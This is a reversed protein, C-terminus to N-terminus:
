LRVTTIPTTGDRSSFEEHGIGAYSVEQDTDRPNSVTECQQGDLSACTTETNLPHRRHVPRAFDIFGDKITDLHGVGVHQTSIALNADRMVEAHLRAQQESALDRTREIEAQTEKDMTM